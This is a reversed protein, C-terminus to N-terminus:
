STKILLLNSYTDSSFVPWDTLLLFRGCHGGWSGLTRECPEHFRNAIKHFISALTHGAAECANDPALWLHGLVTTRSPSRTSIASSLDPSLPELTQLSEFTSWTACVADNDSLSKKGRDIGQNVQFLQDTQKPPLPLASSFFPGLERSLLITRQQLTFPDFPM